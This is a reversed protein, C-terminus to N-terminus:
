GVFDGWDEGFCNNPNEDCAINSWHGILWILIWFIVFGLVALAFGWKSFKETGELSHKNEGCM